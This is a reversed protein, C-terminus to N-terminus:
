IRGRGDHLRVKRVLSTVREGGLRLGASQAVKGTVRHIDGGAIVHNSSDFKGTLVVDAKHDLVGAM